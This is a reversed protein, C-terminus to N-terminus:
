INTILKIYKSGRQIKPDMIPDLTPDTIHKRLDVGGVYAWRGL